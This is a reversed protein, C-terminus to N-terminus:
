RKLGMTCQFDDVAVRVTKKHFVCAHMRCFFQRSMSIAPTIVLGMYPKRSQPFFPWYMNQLPGGRGPLCNAYDHLLLSFNATSNNTSIRVSLAIIQLRHVPEM